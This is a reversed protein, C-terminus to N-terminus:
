RGKRPKHGRSPFPRRLAQSHRYKSASITNIAGLAKGREAIEGRDGYSYRTAIESAFSEEACLLACNLQNALKTLEMAMIGTATAITVMMKMSVMAAVDSLAKPMESSCLIKCNITGSDLPIAISSLLSSIAAAPLPTPAIKGSNACMEVFQM